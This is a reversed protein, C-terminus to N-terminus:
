HRMLLMAGMAALTILVVQKFRDAPILERARTGIQIGAIAPAIALASLTLAPFTMLGTSMLGVTMFLSALTVALNVAQVLRNPDLRLALMYPVLPLVQSGTLGTFFGNVIGVPVQLQQALKQGLTMEPRVLAFLSYVLVLVGLVMTAPRQDVWALVYIGVLIGPLTSIYLPLFRVFTERFHGTTYVVMINSIMAPVVVLMIAPKLGVAAVLFPLACSSYGLGTAGKILGAFFLGFSALTLQTVEISM